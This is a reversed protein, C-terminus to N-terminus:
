PAARQLILADEVPREYYRRRRGVEIFGHSSYLKRAADNSDRVELYVTRIGHAAALDLVHRLLAAGVGGRRSDHAVALNLLEGEDAVCLLIVYGLIGAASEADEAVMFSVGRRDLFAEFSQRPWPDSKFCAAEIAAVASLDEARAPRLALSPRNVAPAAPRASGGM